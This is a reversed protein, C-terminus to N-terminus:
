SDECPSDQVQEASTGTQRAACVARRKHSALQSALWAYPVELQCRTGEAGRFSLSTMAAVALEAETFFEIAEDHQYKMAAKVPAIRSVLVGDEADIEFVEDVPSRASAIYVLEGRVRYIRALCAQHGTCAVELLPRNSRRPDALIADLVTTDHGSPLVVRIPRATV